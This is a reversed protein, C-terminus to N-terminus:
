LSLFDWDESSKDDSEKSSKIKAFILDREMIEEDVKLFFQKYNKSIVPDSDPDWLYLAKVINDGFEDIPFKCKDIEFKKNGLDLLYKMFDDRYQDPIEDIYETRILRELNSNNSNIAKKRMNQKKKKGTFIELVEDSINHKQILEKLISKDKIDIGTKEAFELPIVENIIQELTLTNKSPIRTNMNNHLEDVFPTKGLVKEVAEEIVSIIDSEIIEPCKSDKLIQKYSNFVGISDYYDYRSMITSLIKSKDVKEVFSFVLPDTFCRLYIHFLAKNEFADDIKNELRRRLTRVYLSFLFLDYAIEINEDTYTNPNYKFIPVTTPLSALSNHCNHFLISSHLRSLYSLSKYDQESIDPLPNFNKDVGYNKIDNTFTLLPNLTMVCNLMYSELNKLDGDIFKVVLSDVETIKQTEKEVKEIEPIEIDDINADLFDDFEKMTAGENIEDTEDNQIYSESYINETDQPIIQSPSQHIIRTSQSQISSMFLQTCISMYNETFERVCTALTEFVGSLPVIIETFDTENNKVQITVIREGNNSDLKFSFHLVIDKQYKRQITLENGNLQARISNFIKTLDKANQINLNITKKYKNDISLNLLPPNFKRFDTTNTLISLRMYGDSYIEDKYTMLTQSFWITQKDNYM